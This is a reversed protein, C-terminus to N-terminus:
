AEPKPWFAVRYPFEAQQTVDRLSQRYDVWAQPVPTGAEYHKLVIFDTEALKQDRKRRISAELKVRIEDIEEQSLPTIDWALVWKEGDFSPTKQISIKHTRSNYEPRIAEVVKEVGHEKAQLATMNRPFSTLPNDIRLDRFTYPFKVVTGDKILAFM